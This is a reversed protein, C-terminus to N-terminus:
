KLKGMLKAEIEKVEEPTCERILDYDNESAAYSAGNIHRTGVMGDVDITRVPETHTKRFWEDIIAYVFRNRGNRTKYWTKEKIILKRKIDRILDLGYEINVKLYFSVIAEEIYFPLSLDSMRVKQIANLIEILENKYFEENTM